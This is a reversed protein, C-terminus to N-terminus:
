PKVLYLRETHTAEKGRVCVVQGPKRFRVIEACLSNWIRAKGGLYRM